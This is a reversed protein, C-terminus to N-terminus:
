RPAGLAERAIDMVHWWNPGGVTIIHDLAERLLKVEAELADIRAYLPNSPAMLTSKLCDM